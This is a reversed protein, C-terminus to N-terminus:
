PAQEPFGALEVVVGIRTSGAASSDEAPGGRAASGHAASRSAPGSLWAAVADSGHLAALESADRPGDHRIQLVRATLRPGGWTEILRIGSRWEQAHARSEVGSGDPEAVHATGVITYGPLPDRRAVAGILAVIASERGSGSAVAGVPEPGSVTRSRILIQASEREVPTLTLRYTLGKETGLYLTVPAPTVSARAPASFAPAGAGGPYLYLDGRVADHELTFAGASQVVRAIRDDKLAIRSVESSSVEATLEANDTAEIIQLASAPAVAVIWLAAAWRWIGAGSELARM